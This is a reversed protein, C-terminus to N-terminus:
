HQMLSTTSAEDLKAKGCVRRARKCGFNYSLLKRECIMPTRTSDRTLYESDSHYPIIIIIIIIIIILTVIIIERSASFTDM